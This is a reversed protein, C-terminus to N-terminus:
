PKLSLLAYLVMRQTSSVSMLSLRKARGPLFANRLLPTAYSTTSTSAVSDGMSRGFFSLALVVGAFLLPVGYFALDNDIFVSLRNDTGAKPTAPSMVEPQALFRTYSQMRIDFSLGVGAVLTDLLQMGVTLQRLLPAFFMGEGLFLFTGVPPDGALPRDILM